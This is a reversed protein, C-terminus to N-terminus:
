FYEITFTSSDYEMNLWLILAGVEERTLGSYSDAKNNANNIITITM